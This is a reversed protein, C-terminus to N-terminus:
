TGDIWLPDKRFKKSKRGYNTRKLNVYILSIDTHFM